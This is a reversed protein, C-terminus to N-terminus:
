VGLAIRVRDGYPQGYGAPSNVHHLSVGEASCALFSLDAYRPLAQCRAIQVPIVECPFLKRLIGNLVGIKHALADGCAHFVIGAVSVERM